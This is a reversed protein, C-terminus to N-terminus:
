RGARNLSNCFQSACANNNLCSQGDKKKCKNSKNCTLGFECVKENGYILCNEDFGPISPGGGGHNQACVVNFLAIIGVTLLTFKM